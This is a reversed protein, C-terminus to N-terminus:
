GIGYYIFYINLLLLMFQICIKCVFELLSLNITHIIQKTACKANRIEELSFQGDSYVSFFVYIHTILYM